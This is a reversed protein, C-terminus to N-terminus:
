ITVPLEVCMKFFGHINGSDSALFELVRLGGKGSVRFNVLLSVTM